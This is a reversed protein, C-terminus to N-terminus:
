LVVRLGLVRCHEFGFCSLACVWVRCRDVWFVVVSLVAGLFLSVILCAFLHMACFFLSLSLSLSLELWEAKTGLPNPATGVVSWSLSFSLSLSLVFCGCINYIFRIFM